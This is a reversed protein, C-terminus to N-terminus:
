GSNKPSWPNGKTMGCRTAAAARSQRDPVTKMPVGTFMAVKAIVNEEFQLLYQDLHDLTHMKIAIGHDRLRDFEPLNSVARARNPRLAGTLKGMAGKLNEDEVAAAVNQKFKGSSVEM